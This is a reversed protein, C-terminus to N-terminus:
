RVWQINQLISAHPFIYDNVSGDLVSITYVRPPFDSGEHIDQILAIYNSDPSWLMNNFILNAPLTVVEKVEQFNSDAMIMTPACSTEIDCDGMFFVARQSDSSWSFDGKLHRGPFRAAIDSLDMLLNGEADIIISGDPLDGRIYFALGDPRPLIHNRLGDFDEGLDRIEVLGGNELPRMLKNSTVKLHDGRGYRESVIYDVRPLYPNWVPIIFKWAEEDLRFQGPFFCLATSPVLQDLPTIVYSSGMDDQGCNSFRLIQIGNHALRGVYGQDTIKLSMGDTSLSYFGTARAGYVFESGNWVSMNQEPLWTDTGDIFEDEPLKALYLTRHDLDLWYIGENGSYRDVLVLIRQSTELDELPTEKNVIRIEASNSLTSEGVRCALVALLLFVIAILAHTSLYKKQMMDNRSPYNKPPYSM